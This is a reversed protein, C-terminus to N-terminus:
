FDAESLEYTQMNGNRVKYLTMTIHSSQIGSLSDGEFVPVEDLNFKESRFLQGNSLDRYRIDYSGTAISTVHFSGFAPIYFYRVPSFHKNDIAVLKVFVDSDNKSNDVTVDSSGEGNLEPYNKLYSPSEPWPVGNPAIKPRSYVPATSSQSIYPKLGTTPPKLSSAGKAWYFFVLYTFLYLYWYNYLHLFIKRFAMSGRNKQLPNFTPENEDIYSDHSKSMEKEAIWNDHEERKKPDSLVEYSANIIAMIRTADPNHLNRDPHYKQSLAKYAAKIVESPANRAVKLNEYHTNIKQM